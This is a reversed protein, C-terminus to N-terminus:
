LKKINLSLFPISILILPMFVIGWYDNGYVAVFPLTILFALLSIPVAKFFNKRQLFLSFMGVL